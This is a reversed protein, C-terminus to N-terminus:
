AAGRNSIRMQIWTIFFLIPLLGLSLTAAYGLNNFEFGQRWIYKLTVMTSDLPGGNTLLDVIAVMQFSGIFAMIITYSLIPVIMPLTIRFFQQISKAGDIAAAEYLEKPINQIASLFLPTNYSAGRWAGVIIVSLMALTPDLLWNIRGFGMQETMYNMLGFNSDLLWLFMMATVVESTVSPLFFLIRFFKSGKVNRNLVVALLIAASLGLAASGVTYTLTNVISKFYLPDHILKDYNAIGNFEFKGALTQEQFSMWVVYVIPLISTVMLVLLAPGVFLYGSWRNRRRGATRILMAGSQTAPAKVRNTM